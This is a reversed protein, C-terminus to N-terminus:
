PKGRAELEATLLDRILDLAARVQDVKPPTSHLRLAATVHHKLAARTTDSLFAKPTLEVIELAEQLHDVPPQTRAAHLRDYAASMRDFDAADNTAQPKGAGWDYCAELYERELESVKSAARYARLAANQAFDAYVPCGPQLAHLPYTDLWWAEFSARVPDPPPTM